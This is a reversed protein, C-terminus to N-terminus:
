YIVPDCGDRVLGNSDLGIWPHIWDMDLQTTEEQDPAGAHHDVDHRCPAGHLRDGVDEYRVQSDRVDDHAEQGHRERRKGTQHLRPREALHETV